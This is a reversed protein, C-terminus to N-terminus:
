IFILDGEFQINGLETTEIFIKRLGKLKKGEYSILELSFYPIGYDSKIVSDIKAIVNHNKKLKVTRGILKACELHRSIIAAELTKEENSLSNQNARHHPYQYTM